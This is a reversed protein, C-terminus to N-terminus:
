AASMHREVIEDLRDDLALSNEKLYEILATEPPTLEGDRALREAMWEAEDHTVEEGTVMERYERDLRELTCEERSQKRYGGILDDLSLKTISRSLELVSLEGRQDLWAESRLAEERTPPRYGSNALLFNAMAKVYLETWAGNAQSHDLADNIQCLVEAESKTVAVNGDGGFAYIVRRILEVEGDDITRPSSDTQRSIGEGTIVADRVQNLAFSVLTEPSWRAADIIHIVLDLDKRSALTGNPALRAILWNSNELTIYGSPEAQRVLFDALAEQFVDNWAPDQVPCSNNLAILRDAEDLSIIGDTYIAQRLEQVDAERISGREAIDDFPFNELTNM